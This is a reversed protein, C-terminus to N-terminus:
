GRKLMPGFAREQSPWPARVPDRSPISYACRFPPSSRNQPFRRPAFNARRESVQDAPTFPERPGSDNEPVSRHVDLSGATAAASLDAGPHDAAANDESPNRVATRASTDVLVNNCHQRDVLLGANAAAATSGFRDPQRRRARSADPVLAAADPVSAHASPGLMSLVARALATVESEPLRRTVLLSMTLVSRLAPLHPTLRQRRLQGTRPMRQRIRTGRLGAGLAHSRLNEAAANHEAPNSRTTQHPARAKSCVNKCHPTGSPTVDRAPDRLVNDPVADANADHARSSVDGVLPCM